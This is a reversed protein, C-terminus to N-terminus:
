AASTKGCHGSTPQDTALAMGEAADFCREIGGKQVVGILYEAASYAKDWEGPVCPALQAELTGTQADRGLSLISTICHDPDNRDPQFVGIWYATGTADDYFPPPTNVPDFDGADIGIAKLAGQAALDHQGSPVGGLERAMELLPDHLADPPDDRGTLDGGDLDRLYAYATQEATGAAQWDVTDGRREVLTEAFHPLTHNPVAQAHVDAQLDNYARIAAEVEDFAALPLYSGGLDGTHVDAYLDVCGIEYVTGAPTPRQVGILRADHWAWGAEEPESPMVPPVDSADLTWFPDVRDDDDFDSPPPLWADYDLPPPEPINDSM